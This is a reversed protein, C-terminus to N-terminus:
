SSNSVSSIPAMSRKPRLTPYGGRQNLGAHFADASYDLGGQPCHTQGDDQQHKAMVNGHRQRIAGRMMQWGATMMGAIRCDVFGLRGVEGVAADGQRGDNRVGRMGM